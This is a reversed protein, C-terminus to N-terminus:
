YRYLMTPPQVQLAIILIDDRFKTLHSTHDTIAVSNQDVFSVIACMCMCYM